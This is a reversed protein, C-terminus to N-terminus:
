KEAVKTKAARNVLQIAKKANGTGLVKFKGAYAENYAKFFFEIESVM